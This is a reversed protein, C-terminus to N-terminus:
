NTLYVMDGIHSPRYPSSSSTAAVTPAPRSPYLPWAAMIRNDPTAWYVHAPKSSSGYYYTVGLNYQPPPVPYNANDDRWNTNGAGLLNIFNLMHINGTNKAFAWIEYNAAINGVSLGAVTIQNSSNALQGRLINEYEVDFDYYVQLTNLLSASPTLNENPFYANDLMNPTASGNDGTGLELHSAGMAFIAATLSCSEPRTSTAPTARLTFRMWTPRLVIGTGPSSSNIGDVVAKLDNYNNQTGGNANPWCEVYAFAEDALVSPLGFGAVANFVITKGTASQAGSLFGPFERGYDVSSGSYNYMTSWNGLQDVHWGDFGYVSFVNKEQQYIFNQWDSNGPDFMYLNTTAWGQPM